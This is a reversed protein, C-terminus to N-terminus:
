DRSEGSMIRDGAEQIADSGPFAELGRESTNYLYREYDVPAVGIHIEWSAYDPHEDYHTLTASRMLDGPKFEKRHSPGVPISPVIVENFYDTVLANLETKAETVMEAIHKDSFWEEMERLGNASYSMKAM